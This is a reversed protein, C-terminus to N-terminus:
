LSGFLEKKYEETLVRDGDKESRAELVMEVFKPDYPSEETDKVTFKVQLSQLYAVIKALTTADTNVEIISM